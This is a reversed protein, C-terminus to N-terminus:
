ERDTDLYRVMVLADEAPRRYYNPRRYLMTFGYMEYFAIAEANSPRVELLILDCGRDKVTDLIRELLQKAVSKRRYAPVSAINALHSENLVIMYCAYGVTMGDAEAVLSEWQDDALIEAFSRMPWPDSFIEKELRAIEKLDSEAMPRIKVAIRNNSTVDSL